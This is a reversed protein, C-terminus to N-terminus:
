FAAALPAGLDGELSLGAIQAAKGGQLLRSLGASFSLYEKLLEKCAAARGISILLLSFDGGFLDTHLCFVDYLYQM